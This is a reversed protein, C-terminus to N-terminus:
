REEWGEKELTEKIMDLIRRVTESNGKVQLTLIEEPLAYKAPRKQFYIEVRL